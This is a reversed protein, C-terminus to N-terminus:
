LFPPRLAGDTRTLLFDSAIALCRALLALSVVISRWDTVSCALSLSQLRNVYHGMVALLCYVCQGISGYACLAM